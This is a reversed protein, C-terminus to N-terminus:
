VIGNQPSIEERFTWFPRLHPALHQKDDPWGSTITQPLDSLTQDNKTESKLLEETVDMLRPNHENDSHEFELRFVEFGRVKAQAPTPLAARSLTDAINLNTVKKYQLGFQHRQLRMLMRQLRAPSKHLPKNYITELPQHDTHM